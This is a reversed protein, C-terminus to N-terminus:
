EFKIGQALPLEGSYNITSTTRRMYNKWADSGSERGGGTDKEGGFAGGIEAGSTGANVNVIGSHASALFQEAELVNNTFICNSLGQSVGNVLGIAEDLTKYPMVYLIPAFTEKEMMKLHENTRIIAPNVYVRSDNEVAYETGGYILSKRGAETVADNIAIEMNVFAARDVLPGILVDEDMPDGIKITKYAAVMKDVFQGIVNEHVFARRLTTCRQGTTGVAAFVCGKVALDLDAHKSVIAANNGGLELLARGLRSAVVMGVERGMRTSGTASILPVNNDCALMSGTNVGGHVVINVDAWEPYGYTKCSERWVLDTMDAVGVAKESPKWIVTDGCVAALCFNWAWVAIPFNFATIVGVPGLPQWVEQIRHSPRESPMTLGYLQRSLGVAFDCMDIAEQVEGRSERITKYMSTTISRSLAEKHERLSVGFNRIIEGRQPAPVKKWEEWVELSRAVQPTIPKNNNQM